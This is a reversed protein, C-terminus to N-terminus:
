ELPEMGADPETFAVVAQTLEAIAQHVYLYMANVAQATDPDDFVNEAVVERLLNVASIVDDCAEGVVLCEVTDLDDCM